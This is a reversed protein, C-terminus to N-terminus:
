FRKKLKIWDLLSIQDKFTAFLIYSFVINHFMCFSNFNEYCNEDWFQCVKNLIVLYIRFYLITTNWFFQKWYLLKKNKERYM